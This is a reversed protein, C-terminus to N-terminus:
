HIFRIQKVTDYFPNWLNLTIDDLTSLRLSEAKGKIYSQPQTHAPSNIVM